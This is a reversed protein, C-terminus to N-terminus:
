ILSEVPDALNDHVEFLSEVLGRTNPDFAELPYAGCIADWFRPHLGEGDSNISRELRVIRGLLNRSM